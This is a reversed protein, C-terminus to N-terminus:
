PWRWLLLTHLFTAVLIALGMELPSLRPMWGRVAPAPSIAPGATRQWLAAWRPAEEALFRDAVESVHQCVAAEPYRDLVYEVLKGATDEDGTTQFHVAAEILLSAPANCQQAAFKM